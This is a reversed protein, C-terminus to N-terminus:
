ATRKWREEGPAAENPQLLYQAAKRRLARRQFRRRVLLALTETLTKGIRMKSPTCKRDYRLILPVEVMVPDFASLKLLVDVMCSFGPQDIFREGFHEFGQQLLKARYARYGCTYDRVGPIPFSMRFLWGAGWSLRRRFGSLGAVRAGPQYRSAIVIDGGEEIRGVMAAFHAASWRHYMSYYARMKVTVPNVTWEIRVPEVHVVVEKREDGDDKHSDTNPEENM